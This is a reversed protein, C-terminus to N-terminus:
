PPNASQRSLHPAVPAHDVHIYDNLADFSSFPAQLDLFSRLTNPDTSLQLTQGGPLGGMTRVAQRFLHDMLRHAITLQEQDTLQTLRRIPPCAAYYHEIDAHLSTEAFDMFLYACELRALTRRHPVEHRTLQQLLCFYFTDFLRQTQLRVMECLNDYYDLHDERGIARAIHGDWTAMLRYVKQAMMKAEHRYISKEQRLLSIAERMQYNAMEKRTLNFYFLNSFLRAEPSKEDAVARREREQMKRIVADDISRVSIGLRTTTFPNKRSM